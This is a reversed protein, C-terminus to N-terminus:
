PMPPYVDRLISRWGEPGSYWSANVDRVRTLKFRVPYKERRDRPLTWTPTDDYFVDEDVVARFLAV